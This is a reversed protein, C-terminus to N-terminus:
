EELDLGADTDLSADFTEHGIVEAIRVHCWEYFEKRGMQEAVLYEVNNRWNQIAKHSQWYSVTVGIGDDGRVSEVGLFGAQQQALTVMRDSTIQYMNEDSMTRQTTFIVAFYADPWGKRTAVPARRVKDDGM